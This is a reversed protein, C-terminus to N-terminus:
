LTDAFLLIDDNEANPNNELYEIMRDIQSNEQLQLCLGLGTDDDIVEKKVLDKLKDMLLMQKNTLMKSTEGNTSYKLMKKLTM